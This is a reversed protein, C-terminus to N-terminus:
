YMLPMPNRVDGGPAAFREIENGQIDYRYIHFVGKSAKYYPIIEFRLTGNYEYEVEIDTNYQEMLYSDNTTIRKLNGNLDYENYFTDNNFDDCYTESIIRNQNDYTYDWTGFSGDINNSSVCIRRNRDDFTYEIWSSYSLGDYEKSWKFVRGKEDLECEGYDCMSEISYPVYQYYRDYWPSFRDASLAEDTFTIINKIYDIDMDYSIVELLKAKKNNIWHMSSIKCWIDEGDVYTEYVEFYDGNRVYGAINSDSAHDDHVEIDTLPTAKFPTELNDPYVLIIPIDEYKEEKKGKNLTFSITSKDKNLEYTIDVDDQIDTFASFPDYEEVSLVNIEIPETKLM